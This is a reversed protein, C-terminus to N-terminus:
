DPLIYPKTDTDRGVNYNHQWIKRQVWAAHGDCYAFNSGAKGHSDLVDPQNNLNPAVQGDSDYIFWLGSPSPKFNVAYGPRKYFNLVQSLAFNQTFKVRVGGTVRVNGKVEYSHGNLDNKTDAAAALDHLYIQGNDTYNGTINPDIINKTSPCIFSKLNSVLKPYLWNLDDDSENRSCNPPVPKTMSFRATTYTHTDDILHGKNEDAYMQSGLGMQKLNNLCQVRQAKQKATALAPLLLGALIAIIAIVVLLEILTFGCFRILNRQNIRM